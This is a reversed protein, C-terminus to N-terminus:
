FVFIMADPGMVEHCISPSLTSVTAWCADKADGRGAVIVAAYKPYEQPKVWGSSNKHAIANPQLIKSKLASREMSNGLLLVEAASIGSSVSLLLGAALTLRFFRVM